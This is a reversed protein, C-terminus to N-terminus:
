LCTNRAELGRRRGRLQRPLRQRWLHRAAARAARCRLWSRHAPRRRDPTARAARPLHQQEGRSGRHQPRSDERRLLLGATCLITLAIRYFSAHVLLARAASQSHQKRCSAAIFMTTCYIVALSYSSSANTQEIGQGQLLGARSRGQLACQWLMCLKGLICCVLSVFCCSAASSVAVAVACHM